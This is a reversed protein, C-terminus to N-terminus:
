TKSHPPLKNSENDRATLAARKLVLYPNAKCGQSAAKYCPPGYQLSSPLWYIINGENFLTNNNNNNNNNNNIWKDSKSSEKTRLIGFTVTDVSSPSTSSSIDSSGCSQLLSSTVEIGM